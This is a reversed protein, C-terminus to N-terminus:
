RLPVSFLFKKNNPCILNGDEDTKFNVARFPDDRYKKNTNEKQYMPFKMYKKMGHEECFLYNNYSGYGADAVPYEPYFGYNAHFRDMLPQFCDMDSAYQKVDYAAIYEDCIGLQVNYAPLLQDNGMYDRKVRMFTADHDTKSYSNRKEGCIEIHRAYCKLRKVYEVLKDYLRLPLSKHHGRGRLVKDPELEMLKAYEQLIYELYEIAYEERTGFRVGQLEPGSQNMKELLESVLTFVKKRRTESSKKWVWSYRNANAEIKTGDIYIHGLDVAEKEFIYKNIEQFIDEIKDKLQKNIFNCITMHSPGREGDLLWLFRIDTRCLKKIVRTAQYGEEMFAFLIVKLLKEGDYGPRGTKHDEEEVFYKRLDIHHLVENFSYVPDDVDILIEMDVPM